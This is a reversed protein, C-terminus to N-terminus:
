MEYPITKDFDLPNDSTKIREFGDEVCKWLTFQAKLPNETILYKDGSDNPKTFCTTRNGTESTPITKVIKSSTRAM